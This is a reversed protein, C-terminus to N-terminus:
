PSQPDAIWQVSGTETDWLYDVDIVFIRLEGAGGFGPSGAGGPVYSSYRYLRSPTPKAKYAISCQTWNFYSVIQAADDWGFSPRGNTSLSWYQSNCRDGGPESSYFQISWPFKGMEPDAPSALYQVTGGEYNGTNLNPDGWFYSYNYVPVGGPLAYAVGTLEYFWYYPTFDNSLDLVSLAGLTFIADQESIYAQFQYSLANEIFRVPQGSLYFNVGSGKLCLWLCILYDMEEKTLIKREQLNIIKQSTTPETIFFGSEQSTLREQTRVIYEGRLLDVSLSHGVSETFTDVINADFNVKVEKLVLKQLSYIPTIGDLSAEMSVAIEEDVFRVPVLFDFRVDDFTFPVVLRGNDGLTWGTQLIGGNYIEINYPRTIPRYYTITGEFYAKCAQYNGGGLSYLFGYTVTGYPNVTYQARCDSKDQYLFFDGSEKVSAFFSKLNQYEDAFLIRKSLNYTRLADQWQVVVDLNGGGDELLINNFEIETQVDLSELLPLVTEM